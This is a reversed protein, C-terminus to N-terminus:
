QIEADMEDTNLPKRESDTSKPSFEIEISM